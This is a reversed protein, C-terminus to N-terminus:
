KSEAPYSVFAELSPVSCNEGAPWHAELSGQLLQFQLVTDARGPRPVRCPRASHRSEHPGADLVRSRPYNMCDLM